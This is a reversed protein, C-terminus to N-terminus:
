HHSLVSLLLDLYFFKRHAGWDHVHMHSGLNDGLIEVVGGSVTTEDKVFGEELLKLDSVLKSFAIQPGFRKFDKEKILMVLQIQDVKSRFYPELNGLFLYVALIKHPNKGRGWLFFM